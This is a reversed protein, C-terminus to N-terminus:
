YDVLHTTSLIGLHGEVGLSMDDVAGIQGGDLLLLCRRGSQDLTYLSPPILHRLRFILVLHRFFHASFKRYLLRLSILMFRYHLRTLLLIIKHNLLHFHM